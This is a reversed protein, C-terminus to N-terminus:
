SELLNGEADFFQKEVTGDEKYVTAVSVYNKGEPAIRKGAADYYAELIQRGQDDYEYQVVAAGHFAGVLTGDTGCYERRTLLGKGHYSQVLLAYGGECNVPEGKADQYAETLPNGDMDYTYLIRAYGSALNIPQDDTGFYVKSLINRKEDFVLEFGHYGGGLSVPEGNKDFYACRNYNGALDYGKEITAYGGIEVLTGDEACFSERIVQKKGNWEKQLYAYGKKDLAIEERIVYKREMTVNGDADHEMVLHEAGDVMLPSLQTDYYRTDTELGRENYSHDAAAYGLDPHVVLAGSSNRYLERIVRGEQDYVMECTPFGHDALSAGEEDYYYLCVPHGAEDYRRVVSAYGLEKPRMPSLDENLYTERSINGETDYSWLYGACGKSPVILGAGDTGFYCEAIRHGHDDYVYSVSAYGLSPVMVPMGETDFYSTRTERGASDYEKTYFAYGDRGTVLNGEDDLYREEIVNRDADYIDSIRVNSAEGEGARAGYSVLLGTLGLIVCLFARIKMTLGEGSRMHMWFGSRNDGTGSRM